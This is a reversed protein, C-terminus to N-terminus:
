SEPDPTRAPHDEFLEAFFAEGLAEQQAISQLKSSIPTEGM